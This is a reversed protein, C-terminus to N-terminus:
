KMKSADKVIKAAAREQEALSTDAHVPDQKSAADLKRQADQQIKKMAKPDIKFEKGM